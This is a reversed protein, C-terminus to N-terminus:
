VKAGRRMWLQSNIRCRALFLVDLYIWHNCFSLLTRKIQIFSYNCVFCHLHFNRMRKRKILIYVRMINVVFQFDQFSPFLVDTLQVLIIFSDFKDFFIPFLRILFAVRSWSWNLSSRQLKGLLINEFFSIHTSFSFFVVKFLHKLLIRVWFYFSLFSYSFYYLISPWFEDLWSSGINLNIFSIM